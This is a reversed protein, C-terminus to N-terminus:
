ERGREGFFGGKLVTLRWASGDKKAVQARRIGGGGRIHSAVQGLEQAVWAHDFNGPQQPQEDQM